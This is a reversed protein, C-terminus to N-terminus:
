ETRGPDPRITTKEILENFNVTKVIQRGRTILGLNTYKGENHPRM